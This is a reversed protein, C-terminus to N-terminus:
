FLFCYLFGVISSVNYNGTQDFCDEQIGEILLSGQEAEEENEFQFRDVNGEDISCELILIWIWGFGERGV